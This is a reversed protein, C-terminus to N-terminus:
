AGAKQQQWGQYATSGAQALGGLLNIQTQRTSREFESRAQQEQEEQALGQQARQVGAQERERSARLRADRELLRQTRGGSVGSAALGARQGSLTDALQQRRRRAARSAEQEQQREQMALATEQSALREGSADISERAQLLSTGVQAGALLMNMM